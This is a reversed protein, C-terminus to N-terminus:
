TDDSPLDLDEMRLAAPEEDYPAERDRDGVGGTGDKRSAAPPLSSMVDADTQRGGAAPREDGLDDTVGPQVRCHRHRSM